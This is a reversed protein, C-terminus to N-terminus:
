FMVLVCFDLGSPDPGLFIIRNPLGCRRFWPTRDSKSGDSLTKHSRRADLVLVAPMCPPETGSRALDQIVRDDLRPKAEIATLAAPFLETAEILPGFARIQIAFANLDYDSSSWRFTPAPALRLTAM